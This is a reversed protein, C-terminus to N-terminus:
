AARWRSLREVLAREQQASARLGPLDAQLQEWTPVEGWATVRFVEQAHAGYLQLERNKRDFRERLTAAWEAVNAPPAMQHRGVWPLWERIQSAHSWTMETLLPFAAEVDVAFDFANAGGMYSDYVNLIVPVKVPRSVTEDAPYEPTFAHPVNLM